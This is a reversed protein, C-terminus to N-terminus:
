LGAWILWIAATWSFDIGGLGEGTKPDYYEAFGHQQMLKGTDNRIRESWEQEGFLQLGDAIMYNVIAWVPGRWYRKEDLKEDYPDLSPVAYEIVESWKDLHAVLHKGQEKSVVAAFFPLFAASTVEKILEGSVLDLCHFAKTEENWLRSFAKEQREIWGKVTEAMWGDDPKFEELMVLLDRNARLLISNIGVDAIKFVTIDHIKKQDYDHDRFLQVLSLYRDYEYNSPRHEPDILTVDLRRYEELRATCVNELAEDWEASNDRGTEWPHFTAVLGKHEPDRDNHWWQHSEFIQPLLAMVKAKVMEKDQAKDCLYRVSTAAVPPQSIGSSDVKEGARWVATGPFYSDVMEHFIIHPVMGNKWQGSFLTEMEKWAREEDFQLWGMATFCSDWNWQFPYLNKSPITYANMRSNQILTQKAKEHLAATDSKMDELQQSM